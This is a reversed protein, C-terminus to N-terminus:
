DIAKDFAEKMEKFAVVPEPANWVGGLAGVGKFGLQVADPTTQANIGGMGVIFKDISRVDFGRGQMESKSIAILSCCDSGKIHLTGASPKDSTSM